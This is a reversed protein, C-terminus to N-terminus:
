ISNSLPSFEHIFPLEAHLANRQMISSLFIIDNNLSLRESSQIINIVKIPELRDSFEIYRTDNQAALLISLPLLINENLAKIDDKDLLAYFRSYKQINKYNSNIGDRILRQLDAAMKAELLPFKNKCSFYSLANKNLLWQGLDNEAKSKKDFVRSKNNIINIVYDQNGPIYTSMINDVFKSDFQFNLTYNNINRLFYDALTNKNDDALYQISKGQATKLLREVMDPFEEMLVHLVSQGKENKLTHWNDHSLIMLITKSKRFNDNEKAQIIEDFLTM